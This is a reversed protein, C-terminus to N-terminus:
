KDIKPLYEDQWVKPNGIRSFNINPLQLWKQSRQHSEDVNFHPYDDKVWLWKHHWINATKSRKSRPGEVTVYEDATPEHATDFDPSNFFTFRNGHKDAKLANYKFDPHQAALTAKAHKLAEQHPIVDEYKSHLYVSGGIEKGVKLRSRRIVTGKATKVQRDDM